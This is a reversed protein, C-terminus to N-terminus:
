GKKSIRKEIEEVIKDEAYEFVFYNSDDWGLAVLEAADWPSYGQEECLRCMKDLYYPDVYLYGTFEFEM